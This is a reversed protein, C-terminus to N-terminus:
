VAGVTQKARQGALLVILPTLESAIARGQSELEYERIIRDIIRVNDCFIEDRLLLAAAAWNTARHAYYTELTLLNFLTLKSFKENEPSGKPCERCPPPVEAARPIRNEGRDSFKRLKFDYVWKQCESCSLRAIHPHWLKLRLGLELNAQSDALFKAATIPQTIEDPDPDNPREGRILAILKECLIPPLTALIGGNNSIGGGEYGWEWDTVKAAIFDFCRLRLWYQEEANDLIKSADAELQDLQELEFNTMPRFTLRMAEHLGFVPAIYAPFEFRLYQNM